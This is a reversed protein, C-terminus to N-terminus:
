EEWVLAHPAAEIAEVWEMHLISGVFTGARDEEEGREGTPDPTDSDALNNASWWDSFQKATTWREYGVKSLTKTESPDEVVSIGLYNQLMETLKENLENRDLDKIGVSELSDAFTHVIENMQSDTINKM